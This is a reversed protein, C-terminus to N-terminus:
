APIELGRNPRTGRPAKAMAAIKLAIDEPSLIFDVCGSASASEPMDPSGAAELKQAFSVGGVQRIARLADAGDGDYFSVIVAILQRAL